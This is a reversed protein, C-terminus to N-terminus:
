YPLVVVRQLRRVVGTVLNVLVPEPVVRYEFESWEPYRFPWLGQERANELEPTLYAPLTAWWDLGSGETMSVQWVIHHQLVERMTMGSATMASKRVSLPSSIAESTQSSHLARTTPTPFGIFGGADSEEVIIM